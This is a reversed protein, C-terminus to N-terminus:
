RGGRRVFSQFKQEAEARNSHWARADRAKCPHGGLGSGYPIANTARLTVGNALIPKRSFVVAYSTESIAKTTRTREILAVNCKKCRRVQLVVWEATVRNVPRGVQAYPYRRKRM